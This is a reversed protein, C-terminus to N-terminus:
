DIIIKEYAYEDGYNIHFDYPVVKRNSKAMLSNHRLNNDSIHRNEHIEQLRVEEFPEEETYFHNKTHINNIESLTNKIENEFEIAYDNMLQETSSLQKNTKKKKTKDDSEFDILNNEILM